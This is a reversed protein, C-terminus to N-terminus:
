ICAHATSLAHSASLPQVRCCAARKACALAVSLAHSTSVPLLLNALARHTRAREILLQAERTTIAMGVVPEGSGALQTRVVRLRNHGASGERTAAARRLNKFLFKWIPLV